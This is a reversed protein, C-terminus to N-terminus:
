MFGSVRLADLWGIMGPAGAISGPRITSPSNNGM